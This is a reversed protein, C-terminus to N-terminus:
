VDVVVLGADRHPARQQCAALLGAPTMSAAATPQQVLLDIASGVALLVRDGARVAFSAMTPAIEPRPGLVAAHGCVSPVIRLGRQHFAVASGVVGVIARAGRCRMVVLTSAMGDYAHQGDRLRHVELAARAIADVVIGEGRRAVQSRRAVARVAAVAAAESTPGQGYGESLAYLGEADNAFGDCSPASGEAARLFAAGRPRARRIPATHSMQRDMTGINSGWIGRFSADLVM